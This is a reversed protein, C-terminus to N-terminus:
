KIYYKLWHNKINVFRDKDFFSQNKYWENINQNFKSGNCSKCSPIINYIIDTSKENSQPIIHEPILDVHEKGCYACKNDFEKLTRKFEIDNKYIGNLDIWNKNENQVIRGTLIGNILKEVEEIGFNDLIYQKTNSVSPLKIGMWNEFVKYFISFQKPENIIDFKYGFKHIYENFKYKPNEYQRFVFTDKMEQVQKQLSILGSRLETVECNLQKNQNLLMNVDSILEINQSKLEGIGQTQEKTIDLWANYRLDTDAKEEVNLLYTRVQKAVESKQVLMGLRLIARRSILTLSPSTKIKDDLDGLSALYGKFEKLENGKLVKLGDSLLEDKNEKIHYEMLKNDVEYYDAIMQVTVHTNDPLLSLAKVKDLIYDKGIYEERMSKSETLILENM